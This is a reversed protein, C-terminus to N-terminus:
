KAVRSITGGIEDSWYVSEGDFAVDYPSAQGSALIRATGSCGSIPCSAVTGAQANTFYVLGLAEDVAVRRPAGQGSVVQVPKAGPALGAKPMSRVSGSGYNTWILSTATVATGAPLAQNGLLLAPPAAPGAEAGADLNAKDIRLVLGTTPQTFYAAVDDVSLHSGLADDLNFYGPLQISAISRAPKSGDKPVASISPPAAYYVYTGDVAIAPSTGGNVETTLVTAAAADAVGELPVKAIRGRERAYVGTADVVFGVSQAEGLTLGDLVVLPDGGTVAVRMISGVRANHWYVYGAQVGIGRPGGQDYALIVPQCLGGLCAGGLCDHGCRGCHKPDTQISTSCTAADSPDVVDASPTADASAADPPVASAAPDTTCGAFALGASTVFLGALALLRRM